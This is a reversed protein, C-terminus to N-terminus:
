EQTLDEVPREEIMPEDTSEAATDTEPKAGIRFRRWAIVGAVLGTAVGAIGVVLRTSPRRSSSSPESVPSHEDHESGGLDMDPPTDAGISAPGIQAGDFHPEFLTIKSVM